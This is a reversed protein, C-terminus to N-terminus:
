GVVLCNPLSTRIDSIRARGLAACERLDLRKLAPTEHLRLDRLQRLGQLNLSRLAPLNEVHLRTLHRCDAVPVRELQPLDILTIAGLDPTSFLDLKELAPLGNLDLEEVGAKGLYLFALAPLDTLRVRSLADCSSLILERLKELGILYHLGTGQLRTCGDCDLSELAPLGNLVALDEDRLERCGRLSLERLGPLGATQLTRFRENMVFSLTHLSPLDNLYASTLWPNWGLRLHRLEAFDALRVATLRECGGLYLRWLGPFRALHPLAASSVAASKSLDLERLRPLGPLAALGQDTAQEWRVATVHALLTEAWGPFSVTIPGEIVFRFVWGQAVMELLSDSFLTAGGGGLVSTQWVLEILGRRVELRLGSPLDGWWAAGYQERWRRVSTLDGFLGARVLDARPDGIEELWDGLARIALDDDPDVQIGHLFPRLEDFPL